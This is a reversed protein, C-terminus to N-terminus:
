SATADVGLIVGSNGLIQPIVCGCRACSINKGLKFFIIKIFLISFSSAVERLKGTTGGM